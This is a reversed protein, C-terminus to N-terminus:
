ERPSGAAAAVDSLRKALVAVGSDDIEPDLLDAIRDLPSTALEESAGSLFEIQDACRRAQETLRDVAEAHKEIAVAIAKLGDDMHSGTRRTGHATHRNQNHLITLQRTGHATHRGGVPPPRDCVSAPTGRCTGARAARPTNPVHAPVRCATDTM